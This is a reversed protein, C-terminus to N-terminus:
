INLYFEERTLNEKASRLLLELRGKDSFQAQSIERSYEKQNLSDLVTFKISAGFDDSHAKCQLPHFYTQVILIADDISIKLM